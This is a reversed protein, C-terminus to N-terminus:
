LKVEGGSTNIPRISLGSTYMYKVQLVVDKRVFQLYIRKHRRNKCIGSVSMSSSQEEFVFSTLLQKIVNPM